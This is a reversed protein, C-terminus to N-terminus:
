LILVIKESYELKDYQTSILEGNIATLSIKILVATIKGVKLCKRTLHGKIRNMKSHLSYKLFQKSFIVGNPCM